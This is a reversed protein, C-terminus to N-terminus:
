VAILIDFCKPIRIVARLTRAGNNPTIRTALLQSDRDFGRLTMRISLRDRAFAWTPMWKKASLLVLLSPHRAKM